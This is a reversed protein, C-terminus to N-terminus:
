DGDEGRAVAGVRTRLAEYATRHMGGAFSIRRVGLARMRAVGPGGRFSAIQNTPGPIGDVLAAITPEDTVGIPFVCDAGAELYMRGRRIAEEIPSPAGATTRLFVDVRANIVVKVGAAAAAERVASLFAAQRRPDRLTKGAAHDTDELNCGVAGSAIMREVVQAPALGYGAEIDVTLPVEIVRAIRAIAAFMEDAPTQEGDAWGLSASVGSSTTAVVPFGADVVIRASAADWANPLVLPERGRHLARLQEARRALQELRDIEVV